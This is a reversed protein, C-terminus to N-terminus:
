RVRPKENARDAALNGVHLHRAGRKNGEECRCTRVSHIRVGYSLLVRAVKGDDVRESGLEPPTDDGMGIKYLHLERRTDQTTGRELMKLDEGGPGLEVALGRREHEGELTEFGAEKQGVIEPGPQLAGDGTLEHDAHGGAVDDDDGARLRGWTQLLGAAADLPHEHGTALVGQCLGQEHTATAGPLREVPLGATLTTAGTDARSVLETLALWRALVLLV